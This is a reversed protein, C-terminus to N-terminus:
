VPIHSFNVHYTLYVLKQCNRKLKFKETVKAYICLEFKIEIDKMSM